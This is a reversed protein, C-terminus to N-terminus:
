QFLNCLSPKGASEVLLNEDSSLKDDVMVDAEM